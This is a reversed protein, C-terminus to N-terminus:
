DAYELVHNKDRLLVSSTPEATTLDLTSGDELDFTLATGEQRVDKITGGTTIEAMGATKVTMTSGDDFRLISAGQEMDSEVITRGQIVKTLKQNRAM